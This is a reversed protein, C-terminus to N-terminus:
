APFAILKVRRVMACHNWNDPCMGRSVPDLCDDTVHGITSAWSYEIDGNERHSNHSFMYVYGRAAGVDWMFMDGPELHCVEVTPQTEAYREALSTIERASLRKESM